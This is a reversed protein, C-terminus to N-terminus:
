SPDVKGPPRPVSVIGPSVDRGVSDRRSAGFATWGAWLLLVSGLLMRGVAELASADFAGLVDPNILSRLSRWEIGLLGAGGLLLVAGLLAIFALVRLLTLHEMVAAAVIAALLGVLPLTLSNGLYGLVGYRWQMDGPYPPWAQFAGEGLPVFVLMVALIYVSSFLRRQASTMMADDGTPCRARVM